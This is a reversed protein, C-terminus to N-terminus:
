VIYTKYSVIYEVQPHLLESHHTRIISIYIINRQDTCNYARLSCRSVISSLQIMNNDVRRTAAALVKTNSYNPKIYTLKSKTVKQTCKTKCVAGEM